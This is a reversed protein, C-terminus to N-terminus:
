VRALHAKLYIAVGGGQAHSQQTLLQEAKPGLTLSRRDSKIVHHQHSIANRTGFALHTRCCLCCLGAREPLKSGHFAARPATLLFPGLWVWIESFNSQLLQPPSLTM